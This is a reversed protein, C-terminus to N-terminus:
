RAGATATFSTSLIRVGLVRPDGNGTVEDGTATQQVDLVLSCTGTAPDPTAPFAIRSSEAHDLLVTQPPRGSARAIVRQSRGFGRRLRVRFEGPLCDYASLTTRKGSWGDAYIGTSLFTLRPTGVVKWLNLGIAVTRGRTVLDGKFQWRAPALVYQESPVDSATTPLYEGTAPSFTGKKTELVPMAGNIAVVSGLSRNWIEHQWVWVPTDDAPWFLAVKESPGVARDVWDFPKPQLVNAVNSSYAHLMRTVEYSSWVLLPLLLAGMGWVVHRRSILMAGATLVLGVVVAVEVVTKPSLHAREGLKMVALLTFTDSFPPPTLLKAVPLAVAAIALGSAAVGTLIRSHGLACIGVLAVLVILPEVVFLNREVVRLSYVSAYTAVQAILLPVLVGITALVGTQAPTAGRRVFRVLTAVAIAMPVLAVALGIVAIHRVLWPFINLLDIRGAENSEYGGLLGRLPEGRLRQVVVGLLPVGISFVLLPWLARLRSWRGSSPRKGLLAAVVCIMPIAILLVILQLRVGICLAVGVMALVQRLGTPREVARALLFVALFVTTLYLPETMTLQVYAFAPWSLVLATFLLAVRVPLVMRALAYAPFAVAAMVIANIAKIWLYASQTDGFLLFGPAQFLTTLLSLYLPQERVTFTGNEAFNRANELYIFEDGFVWPVPHGRAALFRVVASLLTLVAVTRWPHAVVIRTGRALFAKM